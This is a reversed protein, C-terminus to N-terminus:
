MHLVLWNTEFLCLVQFPWLGPKSMSCPTIMFVICLAPCPAAYRWDQWACSMRVFMPVPV